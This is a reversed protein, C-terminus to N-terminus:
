RYSPLPLMLLTSPLVNTAVADFTAKPRFVRAIALANRM